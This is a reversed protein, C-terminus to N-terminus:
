NQPLCMIAEMKLPFQGYNDYPSSQLQNCFNNKFLQQNTSCTSCLQCHLTKKESSLQYLQPAHHWRPNMLLLLATSSYQIEIM